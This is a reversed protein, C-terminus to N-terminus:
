RRVGAKQWTPREEDAQLIPLMQRWAQQEAETLRLHGSLVAVAKTYDKQLIAFRQVEQITSCGVDQALRSWCAPYTSGQLMWRLDREYHWFLNLSRDKSTAAQAHTRDPEDTRVPAPPPGIMVGVALYSGVFCACLALIWLNKRTM